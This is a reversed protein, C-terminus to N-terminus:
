STWNRKRRRKGRRKRRRSRGSVMRGVGSVYKDEGGEAHRGGRKDWKGYEFLQVAGSLDGCEVSSFYKENKQIYGQLEKRRDRYKLMGLVQQLDAGFKELQAEEMHGADILNMRYDPIYQRLADKIMPDEGGAFMEYLDVAGDWKKENYYFVLTIVPYIVDDKRFGSLYEEATLYPANKEKCNKGYRRRLERIQDKHTLGDYLMCRVPM